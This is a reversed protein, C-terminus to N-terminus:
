DRWDPMDPSNGSIADFGRGDINELHETRVALWRHMDVDPSSRIRPDTRRAPTPISSM